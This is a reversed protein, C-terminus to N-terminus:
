ICCLCPLYSMGAGAGSSCCFCMLMCLASRICMNGMPGVTRGYGLGRDQYWTSGGQLQNLLQQYDANDPEMECAKKAFEQATLNNGLGLNAYAALYYWYASRHSLSQLATWAESYYGANIYNVAAQIRNSDEEDYGEYKPKSQRQQYGSGGFNFGFGFPGFGWSWGEQEQQYDGDRSPDRYGSGYGSGTNGYGSGYTSGYGSRSSGPGYATQGYSSRAGQERIKMIEEYAQQVQKFKEEAQAANPNNINADPHYKRSLQRYAKKVDEDSASPSVGLVQYPDFVM